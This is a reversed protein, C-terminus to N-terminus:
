EKRNLLVSQVPMRHLVVADISYPHMRGERGYGAEKLYMRIEQFIALVRHWCKSVGLLMYVEVCEKARTDNFNHIAGFSIM